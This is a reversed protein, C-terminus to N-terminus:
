FKDELSMLYEQLYPQAKLRTAMGITFWKEMLVNIAAVREPILLARATHIIARSVPGDGHLSLREEFESKSTYLYKFSKTRFWKAIISASPELTEFFGIWSKKPDNLAKTITVASLRINQKEQLFRSIARASMRESAEFIFPFLDVVLGRNASFEASKSHDVLKQGVDVMSLPKEPENKM